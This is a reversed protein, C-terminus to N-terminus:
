EDDTADLLEKLRKSLDELAARKTPYSFSAGLKTPTSEIRLEDLCILGTSNVFYWSEVDM